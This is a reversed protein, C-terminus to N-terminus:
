KAKLAEESQEIFRKAMDYQLQSPKTLKGYDIQALTRGAREMTERVNRTALAPDVADQASGRARHRRCRVVAADVAGM